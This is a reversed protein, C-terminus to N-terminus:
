GHRGVRAPGRSVTRQQHAELGRQLPEVRLEGSGRSRRAARGAAGRDTRVVGRRTRRQRGRVLLAPAAARGRAGRDQADRRLPRLRADVLDRAPQRRTRRAAGHGPRLPLIAAIWSCGTWVDNGHPVAGEPRLYHVKPADAPSFLDLARFQQGSHQPDGDLVVSAGRATLTIDLELRTTDTDLDSVALARREDLVETGDGAVWAVDITQAAPAGDSAFRRFELREGNHCHWFDFYQDGRRTRNWGVFLARHHQFEGGEGKTLLRGDPAFVHHYVKCTTEADAPDYPRHVLEAALRGSGTILRDGTIPAPAAACAALPVLVLAFSLRPM